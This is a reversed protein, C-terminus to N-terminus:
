KLIAAAKKDAIAAARQCEELSGFFPPIHPLEPIFVMFCDKLPHKGIKAFKFSKMYLCKNINSKKEGKRNIYKTGAQNYIRKVKLFDM